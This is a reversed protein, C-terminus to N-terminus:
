VQFVTYISPNLLFDHIQSKWSAVYSSAALTRLSANMMLLFFTELAIRRCATLFTPTAQRLPPALYRIGNKFSHIWTWGVEKPVVKITLSSSTSTWPAPCDWIKGWFPRPWPKQVLSGKIQSSGMKAWCQSSFTFVIAFCITPLNVCNQKFKSFHIKATYINAVHHEFGIKKWNCSILNDPIPISLHLRRGTSLSQNLVTWNNFNANLELFKTYFQNKGRNWGGILTVAKGDPRTVMSSREISYPLRPGIFLHM